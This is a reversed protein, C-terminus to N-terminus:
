DSRILENRLNNNYTKTYLVAQILAIFYVIWGFSIIWLIGCCIFFLVAKSYERNYLQGGGVILLSFLITVYVNKKELNYFRLRIQETNM